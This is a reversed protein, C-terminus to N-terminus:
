LKKSKHRVLVKVITCAGFYWLVVQIFASFYNTTTPVGVWEGRYTHIAFPIGIRAPSDTAMNLFPFSLIGAAVILAFVVVVKLFTPKLFPQQKGKVIWSLLRIIRSEEKRKAM